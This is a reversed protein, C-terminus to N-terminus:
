QKKGVFKDSVIKNITIDYFKFKIELSSDDKALKGWGYLDKCPGFTDGKYDTSNGVVFDRYAGFSLLGGSRAPVDRNECGRQLGNIYSFGEHLGSPAKLIAITFVDSPKSELYGKYKGVFFADFNTNSVVLRRTLTDAFTNVAGCPDKKRVILKVDLVAPNDFQLVVKRTKFITPDTGIKWEYTVDSSDQAVFIVESRPHVTDCEFFYVEDGQPEVPLMMKFDASVKRFCPDYNECDPNSSDQCKKCCSNLFPILVLLLITFVNFNKM